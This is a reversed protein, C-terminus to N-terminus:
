KWFTFVRKIIGSKETKEEPASLAILKQNEFALQKVQEVLTGTTLHMKNNQNELTENKGEIKAIEIELARYKEEAIKKELELDAIKKELDKNQEKQEKLHTKDGSNNSVNFLMEKKIKNYQSETLYTKRGDKQTEIHLAKIYKYVTARSTKLREIADKIYIRKM